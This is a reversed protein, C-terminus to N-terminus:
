VHMGDMKLAFYSGLRAICVTRSADAATYTYTSIVKCEDDLTKVYNDDFLGELEGLEQMYSTLVSAYDAVTSALSHRLCCFLSSGCDEPLYWAPPQLCIEERDSDDGDILPQYRIHWENM